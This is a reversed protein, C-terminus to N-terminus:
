EQPPDDSTIRERKVEDFIKMFEKGTITEKKILYAAIKDLADRNEMLLEKAQEYSEKMIKMVEHDIETETADGCNLVTQGDLYENEQAALGVLGFKDSMGYQTIMARVIQTAKEIDNSAGTTV